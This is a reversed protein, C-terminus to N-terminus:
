RFYIFEKLNLIVHAVDKWVERNELIQESGIKHLDVLQEVLKKFQDREGHNPLRGLATRFMSDLRSDVTPELIRILGDAWFGAQEIVFPGNLLVLAQSPVNTSNRKGRTITPSPFDFTELFRSGEHRTVKLYVSRRGDGDLPGQHLGRYDKPEERHPQISPGYMTRNLRGSVALIADRISEGELRRVPYHSLLRNLPDIILSESSPGSSQQFTQSLVLFRILKKISWGERIFRSALYDLLEPHSPGEGYVGFNDPTSVIGDGFVHLWIRNAMVRATLPNTSSAILEAIEQRGSGFVQLGDPTGTILQLFGRPVVEGPNEADGALLIPVNYGPDLDAMGNFAKPSAIRSEALRYERILAQLEPTQDITNTFLQNELFWGIWRGDDDSSKGTVWRGLANGIVAAYGEALDELNNPSNIEFLRAMHSLEDQPSEDIDHLVARRIGFYSNPAIIQEPTIKM